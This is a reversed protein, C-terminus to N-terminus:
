LLEIAVVEHGLLVQDLNHLELERMYRSAWSSVPCAVVGVARRGVSTFLMAMMGLEAASAQFSTVVLHCTGDQGCHFLITDTLGAGVVSAVFTQVM